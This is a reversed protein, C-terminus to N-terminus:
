GAAEEPAGLRERAAERFEKLRNRVTRESIGLLEAIEDQNMQDVYYYIAVECLERPLQRLLEEVGVRDEASSSIPEEAPMRRELARRRRAGDRIANLCHNTTVQYLWTTLSSEGRFGPFARIAKMFVEQVMDQAAHDDGLLTRARRLVMSGYTRYLADMSAQDM